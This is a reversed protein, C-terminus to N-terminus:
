SVSIESPELSGKWNLTDVQYVARLREEIPIRDGKDWDSIIRDNREKSLLYEGFQIMMQGVYGEKLVAENMSLHIQERTYHFSHKVLHKQDPFKIAVRYLLEQSHILDKEVLTPSVRETIFAKCLGWNCYVWVPTGISLDDNAMEIMDDLLNQDEGPRGFRMAKLVDVLHYRVPTSNIKGAVNHEKFVEESLPKTYNEM